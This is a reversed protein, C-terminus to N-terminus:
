PFLKILLKISDHHIFHFLGNDTFVKDFLKSVQTVKSQPDLLGILDYDVTNM